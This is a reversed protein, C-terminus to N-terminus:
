EAPKSLECIWCGCDYPSADQEIAKIAADVGEQQALIIYDNRDTSNQWYDVAGDSLRSEIAQNIEHPYM